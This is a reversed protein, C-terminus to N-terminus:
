ASGRCDWFCVIMLVGNNEPMRTFCVGSVRTNVLRQVIVAMRILGADLGIVRCYEAVRDSHVSRRVAEVADLLGSPRVGIKSMFMGAFSAQASDECGASSRVAMNDFGLDACKQLLAQENAGDIRENPGDFVLVFFPPVTCVDKLRHLQYAKGGLNELSPKPDIQM